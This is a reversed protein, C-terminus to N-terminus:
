TTEEKVGVATFNAPGDRSGRVRELPEVPGHDLHRGWYIAAARTRDPDPYPGEWGRPDFSALAELKTELQQEISVFISPQFALTSTLTQYCYFNPIQSAVSITARYCLRASEDTEHPSPIYITVPRLEHAVVRVM